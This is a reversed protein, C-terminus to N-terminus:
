ETEQSAKSCHPCDIMEDPFREPWYMASGTRPLKKKGGCVSCVDKTEQSAKISELAKRAGELGMIAYGELTEVAIALAEEAQKESLELRKRENFQIKASRWQEIEADKARVQAEAEALLNDYAKQLREVEQQAQQRVIAMLENASYALVRHGGDHLQEAATKCNKLLVAYQNM